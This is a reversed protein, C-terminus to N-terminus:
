PGYRGMQVGSEGAKLCPSDSAYGGAVTQLHYDFPLGGIFLPDSAINGTGSAITLGNTASAFNFIDNYSVTPTATTQTQNIGVLGQGNGIYSIINNKISPNGFPIDIGELGDITNQEFSDAGLLTAGVQNDIFLNNRINSNASILGITCDRFTNYRPNLATSLGLDAGVVCLGVETNEISPTSGDSKIGIDAFLLTVFKLQNEPETTSIFKIGGWCGKKPFTEASTFVIRNDPTGVANLAGQVILDTMSAGNSDPLSDKLTFRVEVGPELTLVAGGQIRLDGLLIYPSEVLTWTRNENLGGPTLISLTPTPPSENFAIDVAKLYYYYKWGIKLGTDLYTSFTSITGSADAAPPIPDANVKAFPGNKSDSRYLNYGKLDTDSGTRWTILAREMEVPMGISFDLPTVPPAGAPTSFQYESSIGENNSYDHSRVRFHWILNPLLKTLTAVHSAVLATDKYQLTFTGLGIPGTAYDIVSDAAEDTKWVIVALNESVTAVNVDTIVPPLQDVETFTIIVNNLTDGRPITVNVVVSKLNWTAVLRHEGPSISGIYFRGLEDTQVIHDDGYIEVKAGRLVHGNSDFVKGNVAGLVAPSSKLCGTLIALAFIMLTLLRTKPAM